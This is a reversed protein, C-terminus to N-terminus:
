RQHGRLFLQMGGLAAPLDDAELVHLMTDDAHQHSPPPPAVLSISLAFPGLASSTSSTPPSPSVTISAYKKSNLLLRLCHKQSFLEDLRKVDDM